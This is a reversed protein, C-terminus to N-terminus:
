RKTPGRNAPELKSQIYAEIDVERFRLGRDKIRYRTLEDPIRNRSIRLFQATERITRLQLPSTSSPAIGEVARLRRAAEELLNALQANTM